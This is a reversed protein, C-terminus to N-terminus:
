AWLPPLSSSLRCQQATDHHFARREQLTLSNKPRLGKHSQNCGKLWRSSLEGQHHCPHPTSIMLRQGMTWPITRSSPFYTVMVLRLWSTSCWKDFCMQILCRPSCISDTFMPPLRLTQAQMQLLDPHVMRERSLTQLVESALDPLWRFDQPM